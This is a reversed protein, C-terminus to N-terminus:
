YLRQQLTPSSSVAGVRLPSGCEGYRCDAVWDSDMEDTADDGGEAAVPAVTNCDSGLDAVANVLYQVALAVLLLGMIRVLIRIGTDGLTRAV